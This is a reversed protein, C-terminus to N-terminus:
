VAYFDAWYQYLSQIYQLRAQDKANQSSTLKLVDVSGKRFRTSTLEYSNKALSDSKAASQVKNFQLNFELVKTIVDQEFKVTAQEVAIRNITQRSKALQYQGKRRGWDLIPIGVKVGLEQYQDFDPRYVNGIEGNVPVDNEYDYFGDAKNIGYSINLNAQFRNKAKTEAVKAQDQVLQIQHELMAANRERALDLAKREPVKLDMIDPLLIQVDTEAPLRLFTVFAENQKRFNMHAEELEISKNNLSLELQLLEDKQITGIQFRKRAVQVLTDTHHYNFVAMERNVGAIALNFFHTCALQNTQEVDHLYQRMAKEYKQPELQREWKFRNYGFLEQQYGIRFPRSSLQTYPASGFNQNRNLSSEMFFTGGTIGVNQKVSLSADSHLSETRVFEDTQTSSNYRLQNANAYSVLNSNFSLEPLYNAQFSKYMWYEAQYTHKVLFSQLSQTQSLRLADQLTLNMKQQASLATFFTFVLFLFFIRKM